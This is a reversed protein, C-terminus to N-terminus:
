LGATEREVYVEMTAFQGGSTDFFFANAEGIQRALLFVRNSSLVVADVAAPNSVMVDRVAHPFELLVSKGLGIKINRRIPAGGTDEIRIISQHDTPSGFDRAMQRAAARPEASATAAVALTVPVLVALARVVGRWPFGFKFCM